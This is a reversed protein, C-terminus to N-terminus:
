DESLCAHLFYNKCGVNFASKKEKGETKSIPFTLVKHSSASNCFVRKKALAFQMMMCKRYAM